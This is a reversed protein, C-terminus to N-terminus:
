EVLLQRYQRCITAPAFRGLSQEDPPDVRGDLLASMAVSLSTVDGTNFLLGQAGEELIERQGYRCDSVAVPVGCCLAEILVNSLGEWRSASIYGASRAIYAHPNDMFGPMLVEDELGLETRRAELPARLEGEGLILLRFRRGEAKLRGCAELLLDYGKQYCLRGVAVLTPLAPDLLDAQQPKERCKHRIEAADVPNYIVRIRNEPLRYTQRIGEAVGISPALVAHARRYLRPVLLKKLFRDTPTDHILDDLPSAADRVVCRVRERSLAVAALAALNAHTLTSLIARPQEQKLYRVLATVSRSPKGGGLNIVRVGEPIINRYEGDDRCVLIDVALGERILLGALRLFVREAGGGAFSPIFLAVRAAAHAKRANGSAANVPQEM